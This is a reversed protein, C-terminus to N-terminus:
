EDESLDTPWRPAMRPSEERLVPQPQYLPDLHTAADVMALAATGRFLALGPYSATLLNSLSRLEYPVDGTGDGDLDYGTYDDFYNGRWQVATADGGGDVRVQQQNDALDNDAIRVHHASSHFVVAADCLRIVNREIVVEEGLQMPSSDVYIGLSDHILRNDEVVINGSDKLGIAMGAAGAADAILNGSLHIGRSYMVFIGVVGRVLRNGIVRNDHSYMFHLGYRGGEVRNGSITNGRSYWVVLDRGQRVVNDAILSDKTEWLRISDGRLGIAPDASGEVRNRLVKVRAAREVLIGFVAHEVVVDSVETDDARLRVAGDLRDFKGGTGDLTLGRVAAGPAVVDVVTGSSARVVARPPGWLTVARTLRLPGLHEGPALCVAQNRPDDLQAQVPAGAAVEVCGAPRPSRVVEVGADPMGSADHCGVLVVAAAVGVLARWGPALAAPRPGPTEVLHTRPARM